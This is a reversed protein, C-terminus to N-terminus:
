HPEVASEVCVLSYHVKITIFICVYFRLLLPINLPCKAIGGERFAFFNKFLFHGIKFWFDGCCRQCRLGQIEPAQLRARKM